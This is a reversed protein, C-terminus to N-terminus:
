GQSCETMALDNFGMNEAHNEQATLKVFAM